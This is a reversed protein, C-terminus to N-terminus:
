PGDPAQAAVVRARGTMDSMIQIDRLSAAEMLAQVAAGQGLGIEVLLRGAPRLYTPAKAIITCYAALGSGDCGAPVLAMRPEWLRLEPALHSYECAAIYPPNSVILDFSGRVQEFWDSRTLQAREALGLARANGRAVELAQPSLDVGLGRAKPCEALLTLLIAGSGTGLDLVTEFPHELAAAILTETEPRPDLVDPTVLFDRGWFQRQGIIQAVPQHRARASIARQFAADQAANVPDALVLTVRDPAIGLAHALLWRADRAAGEIGAARLKAVGETLLDHALKM